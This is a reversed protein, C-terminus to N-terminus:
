KGNQKEQSLKVITENIIIERRMQEIRKISEKELTKWFAEEPNEAIKVESDEIM